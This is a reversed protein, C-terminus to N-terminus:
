TALKQLYSFASRPCLCVSWWIDWLVLAHAAGSEHEASKSLTTGATEWDSFSHLYNYLMSQNIWTWCIKYRRDYNPWHYQGYPGHIIYQGDARPTFSYQLMYVHLFEVNLVIYNELPSLKTGNEFYDSKVYIFVGEVLAGVVITSRSEESIREPYTYFVIFRVVNSVWAISTRASKLESASHRGLYCLSIHRIGEMGVLCRWTHLCSM